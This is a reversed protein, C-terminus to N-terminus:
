KQSQASRDTSDACRRTRVSSGGTVHPRRRWWMREDEASPSVTTMEQRTQGIASCFSSCNVQSCTSHLQGFM